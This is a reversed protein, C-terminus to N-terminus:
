SIANRMWWDTLPMGRVSIAYRRSCTEGHPLAAALKEGSRWIEWLSVIQRLATGNPVMLYVTPASDRDDADLEEEDVLELGPVKRVANIFTGISGRLEFVLLREPALAAPDRKLALGSIDRDLAAGLQRFRPGFNAAQGARSYFPPKPVNRPTGKIRASPDGM